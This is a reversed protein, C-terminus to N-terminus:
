FKVVINQMFDCSRVTFNVTQRLLKGNVVVQVVLEYNGVALPTPNSVGGWERHFQFSACPATQSVTQLRLNFKTDEPFHTGRVPYLEIRNVNAIPVGSVTVLVRVGTRAGEGCLNRTVATTAHTVPDSEYTVTLSGQRARSLASPKFLLDLDGGGLIDGSQLSTPLSPLGSLTYDSANAGGIAVSKITLPCTGDNAIPFPVQSSCAGTTPAQIVTAPFSQDPPVDIGAALPTTATLILTVSPNSPDNSTITLTCSKPGDSTPTFAITLPLSSDHSITNPFPNNDITFDSCDIAASSVFLDCKGVNGVTVTQQANNGACVSGFTTSGSVTIAPSTVNATFVLQQTPQFQDDSNIQFTATEPGPGDSPAFRITYDIEEGPTVTVPTAPGSTRSFDSSGSIRIFSSIHLNTSGVNFLQVTQTPKLGACV